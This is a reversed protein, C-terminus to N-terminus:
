AAAGRDGIHNFSLDLKTLTTNDMLVGALLTAQPERLGHKTLICEKNDPQNAKLREVQFSFHEAVDTPKKAKDKDKDKDKDKKAKDKGKDKEKDKEKKKEKDKEKDKSKEKKTIFM